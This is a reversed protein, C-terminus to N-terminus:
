GAPARRRSSPAPPRTARPSTPYGNSDNSGHAPSPACATTLLSRRPSGLRPRACRGVHEVRMVLRPPRGKAAKSPAHAAAGPVFDPAAANPPPRHVNLHLAGVGREVWRSGAAAGGSPEGAGEKGVEAAEGGADAGGAKGDAAAGAAASAAGGSGAAAGQELVFVKARVKHVCVEDEEGTVTAVLPLKPESAIPVEHALPDEGDVGADADADGDGRGGEAAAPKRSGGAAAFATPGALASFPSAEAAAPAGGKSLASFSPASSAVSAFGGGGAAMGGFGGGGSAWACGGPGAFFGSACAAPPPQPKSTPMPPIAFSAPAKAGLSWACAGAAAPAGAPAAAAAPPM